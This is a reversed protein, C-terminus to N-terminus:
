RRTPTPPTRRPSAPPPAARRGGRAGAAGRAPSAPPPPRRPRRAPAPREPPRASSSISCDSTTAWRTSPPAASDDVAPGGPPEAPERQLRSAARAYGAENEVFLRTLADARDRVLSDGARSDADTRATIEDVLERVGTVSTGAVLLQMLAARASLEGDLCRVLSRRTLDSGLGETLRSVLEAEIGERGPQDRHLERRAGARADPFPLTM